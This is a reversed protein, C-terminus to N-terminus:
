LVPADNVHTKRNTSALRSRVDIQLTKAFEGTCAIGALFFSCAMVSALPLEAMELFVNEKIYGLVEQHM